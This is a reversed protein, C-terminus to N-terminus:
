SPRRCAREEKLSGLGGALDILRADASAAISAYSVLNAGAQTRANFLRAIMGSFTRPGENGLSFQGGSAKARAVLDDLSGSCAHEKLRM